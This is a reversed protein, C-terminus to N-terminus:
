EFIRENTFPAIIHDRANINIKSYEQKMKDVHGSPIGIILFLEISYISFEAAM